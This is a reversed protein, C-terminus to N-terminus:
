VFRKEDDRSIFPPIPGQAATELADEQAYVEWRDLEFEIATKVFHQMKFERDRLTRMLRSYLEPELRIGIQIRKKM